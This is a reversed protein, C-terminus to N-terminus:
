AVGLAVDLPRDDGDVFRRWWLEAAVWQWVFFANDGDGAVFREFARTAEGPDVIGRAQFEPHALLARVTPALEARLWERQPTVVPRKPTRALDAPMRRSAVRRLLEKSWGSRIRQDAPLSLCLEVIRHDLYPERLERSFAMSLRDNMRLVRPLKAHRLDRWLANRLHDPFPRPWLPAAPAADAWAPDLASTRLHSTGDQYRAPASTGGRGAGCAARVSEMAASRSPGGLAESARIERALGVSDGTRLFDLHFPTEFYRYGALLEDGGQGELLVTVGREAAVRHVAFYGLTAIGGFPAEEHWALTAAETWVDAPRLTSRNRVWVASRPVTDAFDAEDYRPDGFGATFTEVEAGRGLQRDVATMLTASDLGGSLNVGVPVDSRRRLRVSDDLLTEFRDEWDADTGTGFAPDRTPDWWCVPEGVSPVGGDFRVTLHHGPPLSRVGEFFTADAHDYIGHVLYTAWTARDPEARRGAALLAKIESAFAFTEGIRTWHFPKIGLRDRVCVLTRERADWVAFAFMGNLGPLADIGRAAWASLLVETDTGTRWPGRLGDRLELYNYVEGNFVLTFRGDPTTMPQRGADSLDLISLRNHGFAVPDREARWHDTADPGRHHQVRTMDRIPQDERALPGVLGSIGCM